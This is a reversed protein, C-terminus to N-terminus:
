GKKYKRYDTKKRLDSRDIMLPKYNGSDISWENYLGELKAEKDIEDYIFDFGLKDNGQSKLFFETGTMSRIHQILAKIDTTNGFTDKLSAIYNEKYQERQREIFNGSYVENKTALSKRFGELSRFMNIDFKLPTFEELLHSALKVDKIKGIVKGDVVYDMNGIRKAERKKIRNARDNIRKFKNVEAKPFSVGYTNKVYQYNQNNPNLFSEVIKKQKRIEGASQNVDIRTIDIEINHRQKINSKKKSLKKNLERVENILKTSVTRRKSM